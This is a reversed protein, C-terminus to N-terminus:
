GGVREQLILWKGARKVMDLRKTTSAKFGASRYHQQFRATARDPAAFEVQVHDVTVQIAGPKDIRRHREKEWNARSQKGPPAFQRDYHALYGSVDKAAWANAWAEVAAAVEKGAAPAAEPAAAPQPDTKATAAPAPVPAPAREPAPAASAPQPAPTAKVTLTQKAPAAPLGRGNISTIEKLLALKNQAATNASDLQLAKDYAQSALRAYVDGLNEHAVAYSPHTRIAMELATKARDYQRQQAYLVALNNYPEPLEPYDETLKQFVAIADSTKGMEALILGKAFRAQPDQPKQSLTQEVAQLAQRQAEAGAPAAMALGATILLAGALLIGGVPRSLQLFPKQNM